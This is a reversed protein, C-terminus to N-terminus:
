YQRRFLQVSKNKFNTRSVKWQNCLESKWGYQHMFYEQWLTVTCKLNIKILNSMLFHMAARGSCAFITEYSSVDTVINRCLFSGRWCLMIPVTPFPTRQPDSCLRYGSFWFVGLETCLWTSNSSPPLFDSASRPQSLRGQLLRPLRFLRM